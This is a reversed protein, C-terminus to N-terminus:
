DEEMVESIKSITIEELMLGESYKMLYIANNYFGGSSKQDYRFKNEIYSTEIGTSAADYLNKAFALRLLTDYTIDYGRIAEESPTIKYLDQYTDVFEKTSTYDYEKNMSPFHFNLHM